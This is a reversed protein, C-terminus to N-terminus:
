FVSSSAKEKKEILSKATDIKSQMDAVIQRVRAMGKDEKIAKPLTVNFDKELDEVLDADLAILAGEVGEFRELYTEHILSTAAKPLREAYKATVRDLKGKIDELTELPTTPASNTTAVASVVGKQQYHSALKVAGLAQYFTKILTDLEANVSEVSQKAEIAGKVAYIGQWISAYIPVYQTEIASHFGVEEWYEVLAGTNKVPKAPGGYSAVFTSYKDTLWKVEEDYKDLHKYLENVEEGIEGNAFAVPAASLNISLALFLPYVAKMKM